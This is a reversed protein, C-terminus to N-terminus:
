KVGAKTAAVPDIRKLVNTAYTSYLSHRHENLYALMKVSYVRWLGTRRPGLNKVM